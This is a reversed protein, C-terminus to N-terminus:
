HRANGPIALAPLAVDPQMGIPKDLLANVVVPYLAIKVELMLEHEALIATAQEICASVHEPPSHFQIVQPM